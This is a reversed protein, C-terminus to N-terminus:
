TPRADVIPDLSPSEAGDGEWVVPRATKRMRRNFGAAEGRPLIRHYFFVTGGCSPIVFDGSYNRNAPWEGLAAVVRRWAWRLM